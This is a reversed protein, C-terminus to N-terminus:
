TLGLKWSMTSRLGHSRHSDLTFRGTLRRRIVTVASAEVLKRLREPVQAGALLHSTSANVKRPNGFPHTFSLAILLILAGAGALLVKIVINM